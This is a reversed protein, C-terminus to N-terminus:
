RRWWDLTQVARRGASAPVLPREIPTPIRPRVTWAYGNGALGLVLAVVCAWQRM